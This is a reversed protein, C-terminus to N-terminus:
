QYQNQLSCTGYPIGLLLYLSQNKGKPFPGDLQFSLAHAYLLLLSFIFIGQDTVYVVFTVLTRFHSSDNRHHSKCAKFFQIKRSEVQVWVHFALNNPCTSVLSITTTTILIKYVSFLALLLSLDFLPLNKSFLKRYFMPIVQNQM